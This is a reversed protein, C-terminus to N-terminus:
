LDSFGSFGPAPAAHHQEPSRNHKPPKPAAHTVTPPASEKQKMYVTLNQDSAGDVSEEWREFGEADVTLKHVESGRPIPVPSAVPRGDLRVIAGAPLGTLKISSTSTARPAPREVDATTSPPEVRAPGAPRPEARTETSVRHEAPPDPTIVFRLVGFAIAAMAALSAFAIVFKKSGSRAPRGVYVESAGGGLTTPAPTPLIKTGGIQPPTHAAAGPRPTAPTRAGSGSGVGAGAHPFPTTAVRAPTKAWGAGAPRPSPVASPEHRAARVPVVVPTRLRVVPPAGAATLMAGVETMSAPRHEPQKELCRLVVERAAPTMIPALTMPEPPPHSIHAIILDGFGEELFPPRGCFIEYMICGFSYIDSRSDVQRAGRCQEPSMYLPTGLLQGTRTKSGAEGGGGQLKAIGFDLLKVIPGDPPLGPPLHLFVNDPKLDRHVIGQAHAAALAGAMQAGIALAAPEDGDLQRVRELYGRLSEGNLLEMVIYARGDHHVECDLVEVIGPHEILSAARAESFFRSVVDASGSLEPLLFKIAARRAIYKHEALYVEGMGGEGLKEILKYSGITEGTV